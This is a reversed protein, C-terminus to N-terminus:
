DRFSGRGIDIRRLETAVLEVDAESFLRCNGARKAPHLERTRVVYAVRHLPEGLRRAIEALTLASPLTNIM